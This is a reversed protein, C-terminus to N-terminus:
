RAVPERVYAIWDALEGYQPDIGVASLEDATYDSADIIRVTGLRLDPARWQLRAVVGDGFDTHFSGAVLVGFVVPGQTKSVEAVEFAMRDDTLCQAEFYRDIQDPNAHGGSM